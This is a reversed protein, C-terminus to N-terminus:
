FVIPDPLFLTGKKNVFDFADFETIYCYLQILMVVFSPADSGSSGTNYYSIHILHKYHMLYKVHLKKSFIHFLVM